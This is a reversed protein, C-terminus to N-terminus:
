TQQHFFKSFQGATPLTVPLFLTTGNKGSVNYLKSNHIVKITQSVPLDEPLSFQLDV